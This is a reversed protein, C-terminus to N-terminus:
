NLITKQNNVIAMQKIPINERYFLAIGEIMLHNM